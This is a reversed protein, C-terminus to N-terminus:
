YHYHNFFKRKILSTAKSSTNVLQVSHQYTNEIFVYYCQADRRLSISSGNLNTGAVWVTDQRLQRVKELGERSSNGKHGYLKHGRTVSVLCKMDKFM